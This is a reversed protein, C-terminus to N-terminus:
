KIRLQLEQKEGSDSFIKLTYIGPNYSSINILMKRSTFKSPLMAQTSDASFLAASFGNFENEKLKIKLKKRRNNNVIKIDPDKLKQRSVYYKIDIKDLRIKYLFSGEAAYYITNDDAFTIAEAQNLPIKIKLLNGSFFDNGRFHSLLVLRKGDPSIDAATVSNNLYFSDLLEAKYNGAKAPLRYRKTFGNGAFSNKTFLYLSARSFVFAECDFNRNTVSPPLEKQDPYIFSIVQTKLSDSNHNIKETKYIKLDRRKNSNNGFDGIYLDNKQRDLALDEWDINEANLIAKQLILNGNSDVEYIMPEGGSDNHLWFKGNGAKVLGSAEPLIKYPLAIPRPNISAVDMQKATNKLSSLMLAPDALFRLLILLLNFFLASM